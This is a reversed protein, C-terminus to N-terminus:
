KKNLYDYIEQRLLSPSFDWSFVVENFDNSEYDTIGYKKLDQIITLIFDDKEM